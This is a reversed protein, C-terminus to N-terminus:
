NCTLVTKLQWDMSNGKDDIPVNHERGARWCGLPLLNASRQEGGAEPIGALYHCRQNQCGSFEPPKGSETRNKRLFNKEQHYSDPTHRQLDHM